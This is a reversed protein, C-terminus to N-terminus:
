ESDEMRFRHRFRETPSLWERPEALSSTDNNTSVNLTNTRVIASTESLETILLRFTDADLEIAVPTM